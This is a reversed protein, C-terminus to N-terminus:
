ILLDVLYRLGMELVLIRYFISGIAASLQSSSSDMTTTGDNTTSVTSVTPAYRPAEESLTLPAYTPVPVPALTPAPTPEAYYRADIGAIDTVCEWGQAQFEAVIWEFDQPVYLEAQTENCVNGICSEYTRIITHMENTGMYCTMYFNSTVFQGGSNGCVAELDNEFRQFDLNCDRIELAASSCYHDIPLEYYQARITNRENRIAALDNLTVSSTECEESLLPGESEEVEGFDGAEVNQIQCRRRNNVQMETRIRQADWLAVRAADEVTCSQWICSPRNRYKAKTYITSNGVSSPSSCEVDFNSEGYLGSIGECIQKSNHDVLSYDVQCDSGDPVTFFSQVTSTCSEIPNSSNECGVDVDVTSFQCQNLYSSAMLTEQISDLETRMADGNEHLLITEQLCDTIETPELSLSPSSSPM